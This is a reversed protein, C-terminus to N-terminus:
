SWLSIRLKGRLKKEYRGLQDKQQEIVEKYEKERKTLRDMKASDAWKSKKGVNNKNRRQKEAATSKM